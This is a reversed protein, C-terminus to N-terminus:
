PWPRFLRDYAEGIFHTPRERVLWCATGAPVADDKQTPGLMVKSEPIGKQALWIGYKDDEDVLWGDRPGLHAKLEAYVERYPARFYLKYGGMQSPGDWKVTPQWKSLFDLDRDIGRASLFYFFGSLAVCAFLLIIGVKAKNKPPRPEKL